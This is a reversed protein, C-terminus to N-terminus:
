MRHPSRVPFLRRIRSRLADSSPTEVKLIPRMSADLFRVFPGGAIGENRSAVAGVSARPVREFVEVWIGALGGIWMDLAADGKHRPVPTKKLARPSTDAQARRQANLKAAEVTEVARVEAAATWMKLLRVGDIVQRLKARGWYDLYGGRDVAPFDAYEGNERAFADAQPTLAARMAEPLDESQYRESVGLAALLDGAQKGVNQLADRVLSTAPKGQLSNLVVYYQACQELRFQLAQRRTRFEKLPRGEDDFTEVEVEGAPLQGAAALVKEIDCHCYDHGSLRVGQPRYEFVKARANRGRSAM